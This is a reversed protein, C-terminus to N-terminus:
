PVWLNLAVNVFARWYDRDQTLDVWNRTNIGIEKLDMRINDEL